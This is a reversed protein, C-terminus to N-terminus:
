DESFFFFILLHYSFLKNYVGLTKHVTVRMTIKDTNLTETEHIVM